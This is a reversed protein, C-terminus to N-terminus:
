QWSVSPQFKLYVNLFSLPQIDSEMWVSRNRKQRCAVTLSDALSSSTQHHHAAMALEGKGAESRLSGGVTMPKPRNYQTM